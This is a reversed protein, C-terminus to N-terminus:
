LSRYISVAKKLVEQVKPLTDLKTAEEITYWKFDATEEDGIIPVNQGIDILFNFLNVQVADEGPNWISIACVPRQDLIRFSKIGLEEYLERKLTEHLEEGFEQGGGPFQWKLHAEPSEPQNRQTLLVKGDSRLAVGFAGNIIKQM